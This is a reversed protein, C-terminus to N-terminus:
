GFRGADECVERYFFVDVTMNDLRIFGFKVGIRTICGSFRFSPPKDKIVDVDSM